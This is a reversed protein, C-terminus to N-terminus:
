IKGFLIRFRLWCDNSFSGMTFSTDFFLALRSAINKDYYAVKEVTQKKEPSIMNGYLRLLENAAYQRDNNFFNKKASEFRKKWIDMKSLSAGIQNNSHQRYLIYSNMDYYVNGMLTAVQYTWFDHATVKKPPLNKILDRLEKNFVMTCGAALSRMLSLQLTLKPKSQKVLGMDRGNKYYRLNSCYLNPHGKPMQQLKEVAIKIKDPMWIDDQDCFAYYDSESSKDILEMFSKRWGINDEELLKLSINQEYERLMSTTGDTSGDDRIMISVDSDVQNILSDIQEKLFRTGNYTSILVQVSM